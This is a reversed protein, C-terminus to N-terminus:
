RELRIDTCFGPTVREESTIVSWHGELENVFELIECLAKWYAAGSSHFWRGELNLIGSKVVGVM